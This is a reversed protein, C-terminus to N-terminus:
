IALASPRRGNAGTRSERLGFRSGATIASAIWSLQQGLSFKALVFKVLM